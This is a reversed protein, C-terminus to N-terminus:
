LYQKSYLCVLFLVWCNEVIDLMKNLYHLTAKLILPLKWSTSSHIGSRYTNVFSKLSNIYISGDGVLKITKM